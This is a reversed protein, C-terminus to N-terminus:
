IKVIRKQVLENKSKFVLFYVGRPLFSLDLAKENLNFQGKYEKHIKGMADMVSIDYGQTLYNDSHICINSDFPNPYVSFKVQRAIENEGVPIVSDCAVLTNPQYLGVVTDQYCRFTTSLPDCGNFQPLLFNLSGIGEIIPGEFIFPKHNPNLYSTYLIKRLQGNVLIFSTSDIHIQVTDLLQSGPGGNQTNSIIDWVDGASANFDYLMTFTNVNYLYRYITDNSQYVPLYNFGVCTFPAVQLQSCNIGNVVQNGIVNVEVPGCTYPFNSTCQTYHWQTGVSTFQSYSAIAILNFFLFLARKKMM